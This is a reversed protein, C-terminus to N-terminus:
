RKNQDITLKLGSSARDLLVQLVEKETDDFYDVVMKNRLCASLATQVAHAQSGSWTVTNM